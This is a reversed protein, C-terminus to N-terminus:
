HPVACTPYTSFACVSLTDDCDMLFSKIHFLEPPILLSCVSVWTDDCGKLFCESHFLVSQSPRSRLCEHTMATHLLLFCADWQVIALRVLVSISFFRYLISLRPPFLLLKAYYCAWCSCPLSSVLHSPVWCSYTLGSPFVWTCGSYAHRLDPVSNFVAPRPQVSSFLILCPQVSRVTRVCNFVWPCQQVCSPVVLCRFVAPRHQISSFVAPCHQVGRVRDPCFQVSVSVKVCGPM